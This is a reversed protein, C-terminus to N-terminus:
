LRKAAGLVGCSWGLICCPFYFSIDALYIHRILYIKDDQSSHHSDSVHYSDQHVGLSASRISDLLHRATGDLTLHIM